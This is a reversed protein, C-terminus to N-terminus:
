RYLAKVQGWTVVEIPTVCTNAECISGNGMYQGVATTCAAQTMIQCLAGPVCCAGTPDTVVADGDVSLLFDVVGNTSLIQYCVAQPVAITPLTIVSGCGDPPSTYDFSLDPYCDTANACTLPNLAIIVSGTVVWSPLALTTVITGDAADPATQNLLSHVETCTLADYAFMNYLYPGATGWGNHAFSVSTLATPVAFTLNNGYAKEAAQYFSNDDWTGTCGYTTRYMQMSGNASGDKSLDAAGAAGAMTLVLLAILVLRM